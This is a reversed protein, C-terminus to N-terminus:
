IRSFVTVSVAYVTFATARNQTIEAAHMLNRKMCVIICLIKKYNANNLENDSRVLIFEVPTKKM